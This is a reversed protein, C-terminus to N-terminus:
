SQFSGSFTLCIPTINDEKETSFSWFVSRQPMHEEWTLCRLCTECLEEWLDITSFGKSKTTQYYCRLPWESSRSFLICCSECSYCECCHWFSLKWVKAVVMLLHATFTGASSVKSQYSRTYTCSQNCIPARIPRIYTCTRTAYLCLYAQIDYSKNNLTSYYEHM